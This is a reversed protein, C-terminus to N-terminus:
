GRSKGGAVNTVVGTIYSSRESLYYCVLDSVEHLRGSRGLPVTRQNQYSRRLEDVTIGRIYALAKEYDLSRLNTEEMIGPAIGLVRIRYKGLEKAWSCTMSNIAGKTAAYPSQGESGGHASESSMNIIVGSENKVMVRAVAQSMLFVGKQNVAVTQDFVEETLEYEGMGNPDILMRPLDIGANNVLGDVTGFGELVIALSADIQHKISVDTQCFLYNSHNVESNHCDFNAVKVGHDLLTMVINKGIGSSGGTVIVTKNRINLWSM